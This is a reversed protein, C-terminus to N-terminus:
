PLWSATFGFFTPVFAPASKLTVTPAVGLRRLMSELRWFGVRMGYEHWTWNPFDPLQPQGQPPSIVMRAMPRSIDWEELALVPWLVLRIGQPFRLPPRKAIASFRLRERPHM